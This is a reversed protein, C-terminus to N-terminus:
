SARHFRAKREQKQQELFADFKKQQEDNLLARIKSDTQERVAALQERQQAMLGRVADRQEPTLGVARELQGQFGFSGRGSGSRAHSAAVSKSPGANAAAPPLEQAYATLALARILVISAVMQLWHKKQM